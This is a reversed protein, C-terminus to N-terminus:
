PAQSDPFGGLCLQWRLGCHVALPSVGSMETKQAPVDWGEVDLQETVRKLSGPSALGEIEKQRSEIAM